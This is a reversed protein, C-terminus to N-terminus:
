LEKVVKVQWMKKIAGKPIGIGKAMENKGLYPVVEISSPSEAVLVGMAMGNFTQPLQAIHCKDVWGDQMFASDDFQILVMRM